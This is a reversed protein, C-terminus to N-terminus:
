YMVINGSVISYETDALDRSSSDCCAIDKVNYYLQTKTYQEAKPKFVAETLLTDATINDINLFSM